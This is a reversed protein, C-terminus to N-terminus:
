RCPADRGHGGFGARICCRRSVAGAVRADGSEGGVREGVAASLADVAAQLAPLDNTGNPQPTAALMAAKVFTTM